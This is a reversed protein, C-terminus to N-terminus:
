NNPKLTTKNEQLTVVGIDTERKIRTLLGEDDYEYFTAYNNEDLQAMLRLSGPDYVYTQMNSEEPHIRLDDLYLNGNTAVNSNYLKIKVLKTTAEIILKGEVKQWGDIIPGKPEIIETLLLNSGADYKEIQIEFPANFHGKNLSADSSVWVSFNYDGQEPAFVPLCGFCGLDFRNLDSNWLYKGDIGSACITQTPFEAVEFSSTTSRLSYYGSHSTAFQNGLSSRILNNEFTSSQVTGSIGGCGEVCSGIFNLGEFSENFSQRPSSNQTVSSVLSNNFDYDANSSINLADQEHILNGSLDYNNFQKSKTWKTGYSVIWKEGPSAPKLWFESFDSLIGDNSINTSNNSPITAPNRSSYYVFNSYPKWKGRLGSRYPNIPESDFSAQNTEENLSYNCCTFWDDSLLLSSSSIVEKNSFNISGNHIPEMKSMVEGIFQTHYNKRGSQIIKLYSRTPELLSMGYGDKRVLLLEKNASNQNVVIHCISGSLPKLKGDSNLKYAIVVDGPVFYQKPDFTSPFHGNTIVLNKFELGINKYAQGMEEYAWHAPYKFNFIPDNFENQTETLLVVGTEGDYLRNKTRISSGNEIVVVDSLIGKKKILKTFTATRLRTAESEVMPYFTPIIGPIVFALFGDVNIMAGITGSITEDEDMESWVDVDVGFTKQSISGDENIVDIDNNLVSKGNEVETQYNYITKSILGGNHNYIETSKMKGHMDNLEVSFGQSTSIFDRIGIKLVSVLPNNTRVRKTTEGNLTTMGSKVPFDKATYYKNIAYGTGTRQNSNNLAEVKIESYGIGPGPYLSEGIPNETYYFNDPGLTVSEFYPLPTKLTNEEGGILPEYSAVGSSIEIKQNSVPDNIFTTYNYKQGYTKAGGFNSPFEDSISIQKVRSGGGLKKYNPNTVRIWSDECDVLKGWDKRVHRYDYGKIINKIEDILGVVGKIMEKPSLNEIKFEYAYDPISLRMMQFASKTFPHIQSIDNHNPVVLMKLPIFAQQNSGSSKLVVQSKDYDVYGSVYENHGVSGDVQMKINFQLKDNDDFYRSKLESVNAVSHPLDIILYKNPVHDDGYLENSPNPLYNSSSNSFGKVVIMQSARKDQVFAYDDSEYDITIRGGSPLLIENLNWASSNLGTVTEDQITYPYDLPNPTNGVGKYNGWRDVMALSYSLAQQNHNTTNYSFQYDNYEGSLNRQHIFYIRKLTLKGGSNISNPIGGCLSYDYEFCVKKLPIPNNPNLRIEGKSYLVISDLKYSVDNNNIGGNEDIVGFADSRPSIYFQALHTKSEISHTYWLEKEGYVYSAKDDDTRSKFGEQYRAKNQQFPVRWHYNSSVKSYNFKVANGLDDETIGDDKVDVYDSSLLGTLLYAHAYRPIEKSDFFHNQGKNNQISNEQGPTYEILGFDQSSLTKSEVIDSLSPEVNFSVEKQLNNYVPIGYVYRKGEENVMRIESFHYDPVLERSIQNVNTGLCDDFVIQNIPYDSIKKELGVNSAENANLISIGINRQQRKEAKINQNILKSSTIGNVDTKLVREAFVLSGSKQLQIVSPDLGGISNIFDENAFSMESGSIISTPEYILEEKTNNTADNFGDTFDLKGKIHNQDEWEGKKSVSLSARIDAGAHFAMGVGLEAGIALSNSSTIRRPSHFVGIDNRKIRFQTNNGEGMASFLDFTGFSMPLNPMEERYVVQADKNYDLIANKQNRGNNSFYTGYAPQEESKFALFQHNFYGALSANPELGWLEGGVNSSFTLGFSLTPLSASPIYTSNAFRYSSSHTRSANYKDKFTSASSSFSLDKLGTRSNFSFGVSGGFRIHNESLENKKIDKGFGGMSFKVTHDIGSQSDYNMPFGLNATLGSKLENGLGFSPSLGFTYGIGRYSNYYGGTNISLGFYGYIELGLGTSAGATYNDKLNFKKIIKDGRFDDPVGRLERSISGPNLNWGLGVWSAEQDMTPNSKYHINLPYGGVDMLPINYSFDGTFNDVMESVGVPTFSEVEPQSPGGTLAYSVTPFVVQNILSIVLVLSIIRLTKTKSFM